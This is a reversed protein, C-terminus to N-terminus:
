FSKRSMNQCQSLWKISSINKVGSDRFWVKMINTVMHEETSYDMKGLCKKLISWLNEIPNMDPSNSPWDLMSIKNGQNFKKVAKKNHHAALDHQFAGKCDAFTHLFPLVISKFIEIYKSSNMMSDVPVLSGPGGATFSGWFPKKPLCKVTQQLHEARVPEDNSRRVVSARCGQFFFQSEDSFAVMKCDGTTWSRYKNACELWKQKMAPTLLQKKIPKRAKQGIDLLLRHWVASADFDTGSTLLDRQLDKSTM